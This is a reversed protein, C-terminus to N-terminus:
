QQTTLSGVKLATMWYNYSFADATGGITICELAVTQNSALKLPVTFSMTDMRDNEAGINPQLQEEVFPFGDVAPMDCRIQSLTGTHTGGGVMISFSLLYEGAPLDLDAM